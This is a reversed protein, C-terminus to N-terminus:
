EQEFKMQEREKQQRIRLIGKGRKLGTAYLHPDKQLLQNIEQPTLFVRCKPLQIEIYDM